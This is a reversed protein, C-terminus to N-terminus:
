SMRTSCHTVISLAATGISVVLSVRLIRGIWGVSGPVSYNSMRTTGQTEYVLVEWLWSELVEDLDLIEDIPILDGIVDQVDDLNDSQFPRRYSKIFARIALEVESLRLRKIALLLFKLILRPVESSSSRRQAWIKIINWVLPLSPCQRSRLIIKAKVLNLLAKCLTKTILEIYRSEHSKPSSWFGGPIM